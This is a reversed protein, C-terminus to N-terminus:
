RKLKKEIRELDRNTYGPEAQARLVGAAAELDGARELLL